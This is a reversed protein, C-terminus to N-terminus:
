GWDPSRPDLPGGPGGWLREGVNVDLALWVVENPTDAAFGGTTWDGLDEGVIAFADLWERATRSRIHGLRMRFEDAGLDDCPTGPQCDACDSHTDLLALLDFYIADLTLEYEPCTRHRHNPM